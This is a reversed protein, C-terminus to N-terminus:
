FVRLVGHKRTNKKTINIIKMKIKEYSSVNAMKDKAYISSM